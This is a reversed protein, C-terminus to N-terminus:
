DEEDTGANLLGMIKGTLSKPESLDGHFETGGTSEALSKLFEEGREGPDGVYVVDIQGGFAKASAISASPSDPIGDSIVIVRPVGKLKALDIASHLPTGGAAFPISTVDYAGGDSGGFAIMKVPRKSQIGQVVERLGEIRTKGNRLHDGMSGSVDLLLTVEEGTKVRVLDSLSTVRLSKELSKKLLAESSM